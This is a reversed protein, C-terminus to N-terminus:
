AAPLLDRLAGTELVKHACDDSMSAVLIAQALQDGTVSGYRRWPRSVGVSSLAKLMGDSVIAGLREGVRRELRDPGTIFSPRAVTWAVTSSQLTQEVAWRAAMYAGPATASVGLSSLYVFRATPAQAQVAAILVETLARDVADYTHADALQGAAVAARAKSRTTGLLGFVAQPQIAAMTDAMARPDWPTRDVRAGLQEFETVLESRSDPRVHAYTEHGEARAARVLGRGTYGTAGAIFLKAM